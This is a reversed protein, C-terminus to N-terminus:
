NLSYKKLFFEANTYFVGGHYPLAKGSNDVVVYKGFYSRNGTNNEVRKGAFRVSYGSGNECLVRKELIFEDNSLMLVADVGSTNGLSHIKMNFEKKSSLDEQKGKFDDNVSLFFLDSVDSNNKTNFMDRTRAEFSNISDYCDIVFDPSKFVM